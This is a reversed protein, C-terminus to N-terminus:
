RHLRGVADRFVRARHLYDDFADFSAAAPSLLVVGQRPRAWEWAADVARDLSDCPRAEVQSAGAQDVAAQIAPGTGYVTLVLTPANRTGLGTALERYDIGRDLGGAILAVARDGFADVAALTPLVNTSLSDDYFDVGDITSVHELRSQLPPFGSCADALASDDGPGVLGLAELCARAIGANVINHAGLLALGDLWDPDWTDPGIWRVSPGLQDARLRLEHDIGSAITLEAGPQSCLSLKDRYYTEVDGHWPLHDPHLSTVAVVPPSVAVDAAQYSSTEIVYLDFDDAVDPDFPPTGLNGGAFVRHGLGTALHALISVTTSKGKTGTICVVRSLDSGALWLGLGGVVKVGAAELQDIERRHRSIGPTKVVVDVALLADLGGQDTALVHEGTDSGGNDDVVIPEIGMSRLRALSSRGEAGLGWVGVAQGALDAWSIPHRM